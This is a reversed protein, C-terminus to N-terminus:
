LTPTEIEKKDKVIWVCAAAILFFIGSVILMSANSGTGAWNTININCLVHKYMELKLRGEVVLNFILGGFLAFFIQPIVIAFNFIGMYVGMKEKPVKASVIAFPVGNLVATAIGMGAMAIFLIYQNTIWFISMLGLAGLILGFSYVSKRGFKNALNAWVFSFLLACVSLVANAIGYWNQADKFVLSDTDIKGDIRPVDFINEAIGNLCYNWMCFLGMWVFFQVVALQLMVKPTTKLIHWFSEKKPKEESLGNYEAFEKPPYEKVRLTQWLVSFLLVAGGIYFSWSMSIYIGNGGRENEVGLTGLLWNILFPLAFGVIAGINLLVMQIAFGKNRQSDNVMDGVLARLPQMSLNFASDMFLFLIAALLIPAIWVGALLKSNVIMVMALAAIIGGALLFPIRRGLKTWTRDSAFGIIPQVIIGALPGGLWLLPLISDEAGLSSYIGSMQSQLSYGLQIGIYGFSLNWLQWFTLNPKQKTIM